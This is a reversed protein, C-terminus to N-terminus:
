NRKYYHEIEGRTAVRVSIIRETEDRVTYSIIFIHIMGDSHGVTVTKMMVISQTM